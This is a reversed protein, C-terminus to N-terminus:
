IVLPLICSLIVSLASARTEKILKNVYKSYYCTRRVYKELKKFEGMHIEFGSIIPIVCIRPKHMLLRLQFEIDEGVLLGEAYGSIELFLEKKLIRSISQQLNYSSFIKELLRIKTWISIPRPLVVHLIAEPKKTTIIQEISNLLTCTMWSDDDLIFARTSDIKM